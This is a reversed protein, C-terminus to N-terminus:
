SKIKIDVELLKGLIKLSKFNRFSWKRNRSAAEAVTAVLLAAFSPLIEFPVVYVFYYIGFSKMIFTPIPPFANAGGLLVRVVWRRGGMRYQVTRDQRTRATMGTPMEKIVSIAFSFYFFNKIENRKM